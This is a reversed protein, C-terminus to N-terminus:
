EMRRLLEEWNELQRRYRYVLRRLYAAQGETLEPVERVIEQELYHCFKRDPSGPLLTISLVAKAAELEVQTMATYKM